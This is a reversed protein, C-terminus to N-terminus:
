VNKILEEAAKEGYDKKFSLLDAYLQPISITNMNNITKKNYFYEQDVLFLIVNGKQSLFINNKNLIKIWAEKDKKLIYLYTENPMIYPKIIETASFLTFAYNLKNKTAIQSIKKIIYQPRESAVFEIKDIENISSSFAYFKMLNNKNALKSNLIYGSKKLQNIIKSTIGISVHAKKSLDRINEIKDDNLIVRLINQTTKPILM